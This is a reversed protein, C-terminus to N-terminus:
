SGNGSGVEAKKGGCCPVLVEGSFVQLLNFFRGLIEYINVSAFIGKEFFFCSTAALFATLQGHIFTKNRAENKEIIGTGRCFLRARLFEVQFAFFYIYPQAM